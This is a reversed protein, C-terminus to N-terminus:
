KSKLMVGFSIQVNRHIKVKVVKPIMDERGRGVLQGFTEFLCVMGGGGLGGGLWVKKKCSVTQLTKFM